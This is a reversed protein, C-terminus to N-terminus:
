QPNPNAGRRHWLPHIGRTWFVAEIVVVLVFVIGVVATFKPDVNFWGMAPASQLFVYLALIFLSFSM